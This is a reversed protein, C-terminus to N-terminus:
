LMSLGTGAQLAALLLADERTKIKNELRSLSMGNPGM